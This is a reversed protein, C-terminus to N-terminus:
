CAAAGHLERGPVAPADDGSDGSSASGHAGPGAPWFFVGDSVVTEYTGRPADAFDVAGAM